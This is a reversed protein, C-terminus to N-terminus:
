IVIICAYRCIFDPKKCENKFKIWVRRIIEGTKHGENKKPHLELQQFWINQIKKPVM